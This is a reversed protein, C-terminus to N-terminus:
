EQNLRSVYVKSKDKFISLVLSFNGAEFNRKVQTTEMCFLLFDYVRDEPVEYAEEFFQLTYYHIVQSVMVNESEWKRQLRLKKYYGTLHKYLAEVDVATILGIGSMTPEIKEEPKGKFGPIGVDDFNLTDVIKINKIDLELNGSLRPGLEVEDLENVLDKLTISIFGLAYMESTIVIQEPVYLISSVLLTDLPKARIRFEGESNTVTNFRSSRNLIHIGEVDKLNTIKGNLSKEQAVAVISFWFCGIVLFSRIKVRM